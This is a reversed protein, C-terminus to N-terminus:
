LQVNGTATFSFDAQVVTGIILPPAFLQQVTILHDSLRAKSLVKNQSAIKPALNEENIRSQHTIHAFDQEPGRM